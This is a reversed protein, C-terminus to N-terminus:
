ARPMSKLYTLPSVKYYKQFNKNFISQSSYGVMMAIQQLTFENQAMLEIAKNLRTKDVLEKPSLASLQKIKRYFTPRSMLMHEALEDIGLESYKFNKKIYADLKQLFEADLKSPALVRVDEFPAHAFHTKINVRNKLLNDVQLLLLELPFPKQVYADAGVELGEIHASYTKKSTLLLVPIHCYSLNSKIFKCLEFGDIGPMMIDSIVLDIIENDLIQKASEGNQATHTHYNEDLEESLFELIELNDDIILIHQRM